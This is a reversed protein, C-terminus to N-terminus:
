VMWMQFIEAGMNKPRWPLDDCIETLDMKSGRNVFGFMQMKLRAECKRYHNGRANWLCLIKNTWNSFSQNPEGVSRFLPATWRGSVTDVYKINHRTSLTKTCGSCLDTYGHRMFQSRPQSALARNRWPRGTLLPWHRRMPLIIGGCTESRHTSAWCIHHPASRLM